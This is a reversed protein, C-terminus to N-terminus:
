SPSRWSTPAKVIVVVTLPSRRGGPGNPSPSVPPASWTPSTTDSRSVAGGSRPLGEHFGHTLGASDARAIVEVQHPDVPLQKLVMALLEVHDSATNSGPTGRVCSGRRHKVPPTWSRWSRITGLGENTPGHRAMKSASRSGQSAMSCSSWHHGRACCDRSGANTLTARVMRSRRPRMTLSSSCPRLLPRTSPRFVLTRSTMSAAVAEVGGGGGEGHEGASGDGDGQGVFVLGTLGGRAWVVTLLATPERRSREVNTHARSTPM